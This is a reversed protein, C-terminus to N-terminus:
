TEVIMLPPTPCTWGGSRHRHYVCSRAGWRRLRAVAEEGQAMKSYLLGVECSLFSRSRSSGPTCVESGKLDMM